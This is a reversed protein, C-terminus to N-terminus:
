IPPIPREGNAGMAIETETHHLM